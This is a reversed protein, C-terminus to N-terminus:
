GDRDIELLAATYECYAARTDRQAFEYVYLAQLKDRIIWQHMFVLDVARIARIVQIQIRVVETSDGVRRIVAQLFPHAVQVPSAAPAVQADLRVPSRDLIHGAGGVARTERQRWGRMDGDAELNLTGFRRERQNEDLAVARLHLDREVAIVARDGDSVQIGVLGDGASEEWHVGCRERCHYDIRQCTDQEPCNHQQQYYLCALHPNPEDPFPYLATSPYSIHRSPRPHAANRHVNPVDKTRKGPRSSMAEEAAFPEGLRKM